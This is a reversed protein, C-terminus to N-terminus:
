GRPPRIWMRMTASKSETAIFFKEVGFIKKLNKYGNLPELSFHSFQAIKRYKIPADYIMSVLFSSVEFNVFASFIKLNWFRLFITARGRNDRTSICKRNGFIAHCVKKTSFSVLLNSSIFFNLFKVRMRRRRSIDEEGDNLHSTEWLSFSFSKKKMNRRYSFQLFKRSINLTQHSIKQENISNSSIHSISFNETDAWLEVNHFALFISKHSSCCSWEIHRYVLWVFIWGSCSFWQFDHSVYVAVDAPFISIFMWYKNSETWVYIHHVSFQFRSFVYLIRFYAAFLPYEINAYKSLM